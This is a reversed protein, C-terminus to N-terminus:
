INDLRYDFLWVLSQELINGFVNEFSCYDLLGCPLWYAPLLLLIMYEYPFYFFEIKGIIKIGLCGGGVVTVKVM